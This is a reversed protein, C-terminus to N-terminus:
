RAARVRVVAFRQFYRYPPSYYGYRYPLPDYGIRLGSRVGAVSRYRTHALRVTTRRSECVCRGRASMSMDGVAQPDPKPESARADGASVLCLAAAVLMWRGFM